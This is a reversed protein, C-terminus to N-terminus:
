DIFGDIGNWRTQTQCVMCEILQIREEDEYLRPDVNARNTSECKQVTFLSYLVRLHHISISLISTAEAVRELFPLWKLYLTDFELRDVALVLLHRLEDFIEELKNESSEGRMKVLNLRFKHPKGGATLAAGVQDTAEASLYLAARM